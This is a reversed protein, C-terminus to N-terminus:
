TIAPSLQLMGKILPPPLIECNKLTRQKDRKADNALSILQFYFLRFQIFISTFVLKLVSKPQKFTLLNIM